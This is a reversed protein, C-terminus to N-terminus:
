GGPRVPHWARTEAIRALLRDLKARGNEVDFQRRGSVFVIAKMMDDRLLGPNGEALQKTVALLAAEALDRRAVPRAKRLRAAADEPAQGLTTWALEPRRM